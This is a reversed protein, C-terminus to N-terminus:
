PPITYTLWVAIFDVDNDLGTDKLFTGPFFHSYWAQVEVHRSPTWGLGLSPQNGVYRADSGAGSVRLVGSAGYVGDATEQRWFFDWDANASLQQTLEVRISPHVDVHNLPGILAVEGFYNARPYLPNFTQLAPQGPDNDGSTVNAKFGLRPRTALSDLTYGTDSAATWASIGGAGFRGWQYVFEFNYDWPLPRGWWRTGASHRREPAMGQEFSAEPRRLGLYYFDANFESASLPGTAYLGWLRQGPEQGDDFSGPDTEVPAVAFADVEWAAFGLTVRAGDFARRVNAGERVSILRSSGFTLEQRGARLALSSLGPGEPISFEVFAQQLDLRNEDVPRPNGAETAIASALQAFVRLPAGVRLDAYAMYRQLLYTDTRSPDNSWDRNEFHEFRQRLEAGFCLCDETAASDAQAPGVMAGLLM